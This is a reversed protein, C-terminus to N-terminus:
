ERGPHQASQIAQVRMAFYSGLTKSAAPIGLLILVIAVVAPQIYKLQEALQPLFASGLLVLLGVLGIVLQRISENRDM